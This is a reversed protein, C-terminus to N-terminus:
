GKVGVTNCQVSTPRFHALKRRFADCLVLKSEIHAVDRGQADSQTSM